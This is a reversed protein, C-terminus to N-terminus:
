AQKGGSVRRQMALARTRGKQITDVMGALDRRVGRLDMLRVYQTRFERRTMDKLPFSSYLQDIYDEKGRAVAM